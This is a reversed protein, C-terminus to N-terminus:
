SAVERVVAPNTVCISDCDWGYLAWYLDRCTMASVYIADYGLTLYSGLDLWWAIRPSRMDASYFVGSNSLEDMTTLTLVKATPDLTFDFHRDLQGLDWDNDRCWEEWTFFNDGVPSAWLGWGPKVGIPHLQGQGPYQHSLDFRSAGFHRYVTM